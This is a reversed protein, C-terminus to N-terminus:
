SSQEYTMGTFVDYFVASNRKYDQENSTCAVTYTYDGVVAYGVFFYARDRTTEASIWFETIALINGGVSPHEESILRFNDGYTKIFEKSAVEQYKVASDYEESKPSRSIVISATDTVYAPNESDKSVKFSRPVAVSVNEYPTYTVYEGQNLMKNNKSNVNYIVLTLITGIILVAFTILIIATKKM